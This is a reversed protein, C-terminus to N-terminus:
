HITAAEQVVLDVGQHAAPQRAQELIQLGNKVMLEGLSPACCPFTAAAARMAELLAAMYVEHLVGEASEIIQQAVAEIEKVLQMAETQEPTQNM